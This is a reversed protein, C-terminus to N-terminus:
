VRQMRPKKEDQEEESTLVHCVKDAHLPSGLLSLLEELSGNRFWLLLQRVEHPKCYGCIKMDRGGRRPWPGKYHGDRILGVRKLEKVDHVAQQIIAYGLNIYALYESKHTM